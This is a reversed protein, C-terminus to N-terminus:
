RTPLLIDELYDRRKLRVNDPDPWARLSVLVLVLTIRIEHTNSRTAKSSKKEEHVQEIYSVPEKKELKQSIILDAAVNKWIRIKDRTKRLQLWFHNSSKNWGKEIFLSYNVVFFFSVELNKEKFM